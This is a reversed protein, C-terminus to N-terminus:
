IWFWVPNFPDSVSLAPIVSSNLAGQPAVLCNALIAFPLISFKSLGLLEFWNKKKFPASRSKIEDSSPTVQSLTILFM